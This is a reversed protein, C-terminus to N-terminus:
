LKPEEHQDTRIFDRPSAPPGKKGHAERWRRFEIVVMLAIDRPSGIKNTHFDMLFADQEAAEAAELMALAHARADEPSMQCMVQGEMGIQVFPEGDKNVGSQHWLVPGNM